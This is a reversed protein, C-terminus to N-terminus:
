QQPVPECLDSPICAGTYCGNEVGPRASPPCAPALRECTVEAFCTGPSKGEPACMAFTRQPPEPPTLALGGNRHYATCAPNRSCTFGDRATFCDLSPDVTQDTPFCGLFDTACDGSIACSADKVVRCEAATACETESLSECTHFCFGWTPVPGLDILPCPGCEPNCGGGGFAECTLTEPNRQPAIASAPEAAPLLCDDDRDDFVITCGAALALLMTLSALYRM